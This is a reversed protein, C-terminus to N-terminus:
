IMSFFTATWYQVAQFSHECAGPSANDSKPKISDARSLISVLFADVLRSHTQGSLSV